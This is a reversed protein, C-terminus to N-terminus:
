AAQAMPAPATSVAAGSTSTQQATTAAPAATSGPVQQGPMQQPKQDKEADKSSIAQFWQALKEVNIVLQKRGLSQADNLIATNKDMLSRANVQGLQQLLQDVRGATESPKAVNKAISILNKNSDGKFRSLIAERTDEKTLLQLTALIPAIRAVEDPTFTANSKLKGAIENLFDEALECILQPENFAPLNVILQAIALQKENAAETIEHILSFKSLTSNM